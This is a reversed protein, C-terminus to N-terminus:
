LTESDADASYRKCNFSKSWHLRHVYTMTWVMKGGVGTMKLRYLQIALWFPKYQVKSARDKLGNVAMPRIYVDCFRGDRHGLVYIYTGGWNRKQANTLARGGVHNNNCTESTDEEDTRQDSSARRPRKWQSFLEEISRATKDLHRSVANHINGHIHYAVLQYSSYTLYSENRRRDLLSSTEDQQFRPSRIVTSIQQSLFSTVPAGPSFIVVSRSHVFVDVNWSVTFARRAMAKTSPDDTRIYSCRQSHFMALWSDPSIGLLLATDSCQYFLLWVSSLGEFTFFIEGEGDNSRTGTTPSPGTVVLSSRRRLPGPVYTGFNSAQM